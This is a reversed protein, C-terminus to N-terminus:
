PQLVEEGVVDVIDRPRLRTWRPQVGGDLQVEYFAEPDGHAPYHEVVRASQGYEDTVANVIATAMPADIDGDHTTTVVAVSRTGVQWVRLRSVFGRGGPPQVAWNADDRIPASM